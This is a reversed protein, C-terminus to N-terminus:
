LERGDSAKRRFAKTRDRKSFDRDNDREQSLSELVDFLGDSIDKSKAAEKHNLQEREESQEDQGRGQQKLLESQQEYEQQLEEVFSKFNFNEKEQEELQDYAELAAVKVQMDARNMEPDDTLHEIQNDIIPAIEELYAEYDQKLAQYVKLKIQTDKYDEPSMDQTQKNELKTITRSYIELSTAMDKAQKWVPTYHQHYAQEKDQFQFETKIKDEPLLINHDKILQMAFYKEDYRYDDLSAEDYIAAFERDLLEKQYDLGTVTAQRLEEFKDKEEELKQEQQKTNQLEQKMEEKFHNSSFGYSEVAEPNTKHKEMLEAYLNKKAKILTENRELKLKWKNHNDHFEQHLQKAIQFDVYGKARQVLLNTAQIKNEDHHSKQRLEKLQKDLDAKQKYDELRIVDQHQDNYRKIEENRQAYYTVPQYREGNQEAEQKKRKELQYENRTLRIQPKKSLGQEEYSKASYTQELDYKRAKENLKEAWNERWQLLKKKSDWDNLKISKTQKWGKENYMQNGHEDLKPVRKSKREEWEGNEKLARATLLMHVHPNNVDDRHISVDAVMGDDTFNERVYDETAERQQEETMNNPLSMVINRAIQANEQTEFREVENWLKERELTWDPAHNPKMIFSEPEVFRDKYNKTEGDRMSYLQEGSRYSAMAVASQNSKNVTQCDFMYYGSSLDIM